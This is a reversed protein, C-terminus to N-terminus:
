QGVWGVSPDISSGRISLSLPLSSSSMSNTNHRIFLALHSSELFFMQGWNCMAMGSVAAESPYKSMRTSKILNFGAVCINTNLVQTFVSITSELDMWVSKHLGGFRITLPMIEHFGINLNVLRRCVYVHVYVYVYVYLKSSDWKALYFYCWTYYLGVEAMHIIEEGWNGHSPTCIWLM